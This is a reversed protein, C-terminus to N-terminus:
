HIGKYVISIPCQRAFELNRRKLEYAMVTEYVSEFLGPGLGTHIQYAADVIEKAIENERM